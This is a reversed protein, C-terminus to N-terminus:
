SEVPAILQTAGRPTGDVDELARVLTAILADAIDRHLHARFHIFSVQRVPVPPAFPRVQARRRRTPLSNVWLEPLITIGLGSDVLRVLTEFSGSEFHTNRGEVARRDARCLQLVQTRFCHGEPMLWLEEDYLDSQRIRARKGLAHRPSLYVWFPEQFLAREHLSPVGLPTVAIGGDLTDDELRQIMPDTQVEEVVLEVEPHRRSFPPLFLPVLTPALSPLVGLRYRGAITDHERAVDALRETERVITRAQAIVLAGRETPVVPKRSRDLVTTGLTEELKGLQMSLAPQSVHCHEAALRFSRFRDVALLYRLQTLTLNTLDM